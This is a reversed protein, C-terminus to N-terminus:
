IVKNLISLFFLFFPPPRLRSDDIDTPWGQLQGEVASDRLLTRVYRLNSETRPPNVVWGHPIYMRVREFPYAMLRSPLWTFRVKTKPAQSQVIAQQGLLQVTPVCRYRYK